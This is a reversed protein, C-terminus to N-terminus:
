RVKFSTVAMGESVAYRAKLANLGTVNLQEMEELALRWWHSVSEFGFHRKAAFRQYEKVAGRLLEGKRTPGREIIAKGHQFLAKDLDDLTVADEEFLIAYDAREDPFYLLLTLLSMWSSHHEVSWALAEHIDDLSPLPENTSASQANHLQAVTEACLALIAFDPNNLERSVLWDSQWLATIAHEGLRKHVLSTAHGRWLTTMKKMTNPVIQLLVHPARARQYAEFLVRYDDTLASVDFGSDIVFPYSQIANEAWFFADVLLGVPMWSAGLFPRVDAVLDEYTQRGLNEAARERAYRVQCHRLWAREPRDNGQNAAALDLMREAAQLFSTYKDGRSEGPALRYLINAWDELSRYDDRYHRLIAEELPAMSRLICLRSYRWWANLMAAHDQQDLPRLQLLANQTKRLVELVDDDYCAKNFLENVLTNVLRMAEAGSSCKEVVTQAILSHRAAHQASLRVWPNHNARGNLDADPVLLLLVDEPVSEGVASLMCILLYAVGDAFPLELLEQLLKSQSAPGYVASLLGVILTDRHDSLLEVQARNPLSLFTSLHPYREDMQQLQKYYEPLESAARIVLAAWQEIQDDSFDEAELTLDVRATRKLSKAVGTNTCVVMTSNGSKCFNNSAAFMLPQLDNVIKTEYVYVFRQADDGLVQAALSLQQAVNDVDTWQQQTIPEIRVIWTDEHLYNVMANLFSSKGQGADTGIVILQRPNSQILRALDAATYSKTNRGLMYRNVFGGAAVVNRPIASGDLVCRWDTASNKTSDFPFGQLM